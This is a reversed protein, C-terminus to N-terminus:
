CTLFRAPRATSLRAALARVGPRAAHQRRADRSLRAGRRQAPRPRVVRLARDSLGRFAAFASQIREQFGEPGWDSFRKRSSIPRSSSPRSPAPCGPSAAEVGGLPHQRRPLSYRSPPASTTTSRATRDRRRWGHRRLGRSPPALSAVATTPRRTTIAASARHRLAANPPSTLGIVAIRGGRQDVPLFALGLATKSSASSLVVSSAGFFGTDALPLRRDPVLHPVAAVAADDARGRAGPDYCRTARSARAYQNTRAPWARRHPATPFSGTTSEAAQVVLHTSMPLYGYLREGSGVGDVRSDVVDAFGVGPRAGATAAPFFNWYLMAEGFVAYTINNATFAFRDIGLLVEGDAIAIEGDTFGCTRLDDRGVRFTDTTNTM